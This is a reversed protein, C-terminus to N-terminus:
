SMRRKGLQQLLHHNLTRDFTDFYASLMNMFNHRTYKAEETLMNQSALFRVWGEQISESDLPPIRDIIDFAAEDLVGVGADVLEGTGGSDAYFVPLRCNVAQCVVKPAADRYAFNIMYKAKNMIENVEKEDEIYGHEIVNEPVDLMGCEGILHLTYEPAVDVMFAMLDSWRKQDRIWNSASAVLVHPDKPEGRDLPFYVTDDVCNLIVKDNQLKDGYLKYYADQSYKSIFIVWDSQTAAKNLPINREVLYEDWYVGDMRKVRPKDLKDFRKPYVDNTFLLDASKAKKVCEWGFIHCYKKLGCVIDNTSPGNNEKHHSPAESSNSCDYFKKM